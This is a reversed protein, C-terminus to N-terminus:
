GIVFLNLGTLIITVLSSVAIVATLLSNRRQQIDRELTNWESEVTSRLTLLRDSQRRAEESNIYNRSLERVIDGHIRGDMLTDYFDECV